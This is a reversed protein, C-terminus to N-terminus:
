QVILLGALDGPGGYNVIAVMDGEEIDCLNGGVLTQEILYQGARHDHIKMMVETRGIFAMDIEGREGLNLTVKASDRDIAVVQATLMNLYDYDPTIRFLWERGLYGLYNYLSGHLNIEGTKRYPTRDQFYPRECVIEPAEEGVGHYVLEGTRVWYDVGATNICLWGDQEGCFVFNKGAALYGLAEGGPELYVNVQMDNVYTQPEEPELTPEPTATPETTVTPEPAPATPESPTPEPPPSPIETPEPSPPPTETPEVPPPTETPFPSPPTPTPQEDGCASLLCAIAFVGGGVKLGKLFDRRSLPSSVELPSQDQEKNQDM